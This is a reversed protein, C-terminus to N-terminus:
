SFMGTLPPVTESTYVTNFFNRNRRMKEETWDWWCINQLQDIVEPSFRKRIKRAPVGAVVSFPAVDRTVVSGAALVAGNGVTVGALIIVADGIWVNHGILVGQREKDFLSVSGLRRQLDGQLNPLNMKHNATIIKIDDGIACYKGISCPGAGKIVIPGNVRTGRGIECLDNIRSGHPLKQKIRWRKWKKKLDM